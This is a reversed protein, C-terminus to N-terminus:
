IGYNFGYNTYKLVDRNIDGDMSIYISYGFSIFIITVFLCIIYIHNINYKGTLHLSLLLIITSFYLVLMIILLITFKDM